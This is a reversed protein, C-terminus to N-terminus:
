SWYSPIILVRCRPRGNVAVAPDTFLRVYDSEKELSYNIGALNVKRGWSAEAKGVMFLMIFYM